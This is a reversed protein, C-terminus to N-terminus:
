GRVLSRERVRNGIDDTNDRLREKCRGVNWRARQAWQARADGTERYSYVAVAFPQVM